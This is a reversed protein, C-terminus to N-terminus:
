KSLRPVHKNQSRFFDRPKVKRDARRAEAYRDLQEGRTLAAFIAAGPMILPMFVIYVLRLAASLLHEFLQCIVIALNLGIVRPHMDHKLAFCIRRLKTM